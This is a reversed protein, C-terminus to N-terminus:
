GSSSPLARCFLADVAHKVRCASSRGDNFEDALQRSAAASARPFFDARSLVGAPLGRWSNPRPRGRASAIMQRGDIPWGDLMPM